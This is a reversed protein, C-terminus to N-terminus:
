GPKRRRTEGQAVAGGRGQSEEVHLRLKHIDRYDPNRKELALAHHRAQEWDGLRAYIQVLKYRCENAVDTGAESERLCRQYVDLAGLFSGTSYLIEGILCQAEPFSPDRSKVKKLEDCAEDVLGMEFYALGMDIRAKSDGAIIKDSRRRFEKLLPAVKDKSDEIDLGLEEELHAILDSLTPEEVREPKKAPRPERPREQGKEDSPAAEPYVLTIFDKRALKGAEFRALHDLGDRDKRWKLLERLLECAETDHTKTKLADLLAKMAQDKEGKEMLAMAKQLFPTADTRDIELKADYFVQRLAPHDKAEAELYARYDATRDRKELAYRSFLKMADKAAAENSLGVECLALQVYLRPSEPSLRIARGLLSKAEDYKGRKRLRIAAQAYKASAVSRKGRKELAKAEAVAEDLNFPM